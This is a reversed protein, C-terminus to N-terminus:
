IFSLVVFVSLSVTINDYKNPTVFEVAAAVFAAVVLFTFPLTLYSHPLVVYQSFVLSILLASLLTGAFVALAGEVSKGNFEFRRKAYRGAFPAIGDGFCVACIAAIGILTRFGIATILILVLFLLLPGYVTEKIDQERALMRVHKRHPGVGLLAALIAVMYGLPVLSFLVKAYPSSFFFWFIILGGMWIHIIKRGSSASVMKSTVLRNVIFAISIAYIAELALISLNYILPM